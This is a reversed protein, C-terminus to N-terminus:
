FILFVLDFIIPIQFALKQSGNAFVTPAAREAAPADQTKSSRTARPPQASSKLTRRPMTELSYLALSQYKYSGM